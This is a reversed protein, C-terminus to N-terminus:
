AAAINAISGSVILGDATVTGTVDIGTATTALKTSTTHKLEVSGGTGTDTMLIFENGGADAM